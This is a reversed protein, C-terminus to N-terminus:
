ESVSSNKWPCSVARVQGMSGKEHRVYVNDSNHVIKCLFTHTTPKIRSAFAANFRRFSAFMHVVSPMPHQELALLLVRPTLLPSKASSVHIALALAASCRSHLISVM